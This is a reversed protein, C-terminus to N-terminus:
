EGFMTLRRDTRDAGDVEVRAHLDVFGLSGPRGSVFMVLGDCGGLIRGASDQIEVALRYNGGGLRARFDIRAVLEEGQHFGDEESDLDAEFRAIVQGGDARLAFNLRAERVDRHFRLRLELTLPEDYNAHHGDLAGEGGILRQGVVEV